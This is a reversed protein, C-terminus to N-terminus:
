ITKLKEDFEKIKDYFKDLNDDLEQKIKDFRAGRHERPSIPIKRIVDITMQEDRKASLKYQMMYKKQFKSWDNVKSKEFRIYGEFSEGGNFTRIQCYCENNLEIFKEKIRKTRFTVAGEADESSVFEIESNLKDELWKRCYKLIKGASTELYLEILEFAERNKDYIEKCKKLLKTNKKLIDTNIMEMYDKLIQNIKSKGKFDKLIAVIDKYSFVCWNTKEIGDETPKEGTPTLYIFIKNRKDNEFEHEYRTLQNDHIGSFIKNEIVILSSSTEILIDIRGDYDTKLPRETQVAIGVESTIKKIEESSSYEAKQFIVTNNGYIKNLVKELFQGHLGHPYQPNLLNALFKSHRIEQGHMGVAYFFNFEKEREKEAAQIAKNFDDLLKIYKETIEEQRNEVQVIEKTRMNLTM